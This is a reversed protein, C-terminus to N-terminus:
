TVEQIDARCQKCCSPALKLGGGAQSEVDKSFCSKVPVKQVSDTKLGLHFLPYQSATNLLWNRIQRWNKWKDKQQESTIKYTLVIHLFFVLIEPFVWLKAKRIGEQTSSLIISEREKASNAVAKEQGTAGPLNGDDPLYILCKSWSASLRCLEVPNQNNTRLVKFSRGWRM